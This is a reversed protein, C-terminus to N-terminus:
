SPWRVYFIPLPAARVDNLSKKLGKRIDAAIKKREEFPQLEQMARQADEEAAYVVFFFNKDWNPKIKEVHGFREFLSFFERKRADMLEEKLFENCSDDKLIDDFSAKGVFLKRGEEEHDEELIRKRQEQFRKKKEKREAKLKKKEEEWKLKRRTQEEEWAEAKAQLEAERKKHEETVARQREENKIHQRRRGEEANLQINRRITEKKQKRQQERRKQEEKKRAEKREREEQRYREKEEKITESREKNFLSIWSMDNHESSANSSLSETDSEFLGVFDDSESTDETTNFTDSLIHFDFHPLDVSAVEIPKELEQKREKRKQITEQIRQLSKNVHPPKPTENEKTRRESAMIMLQASRINTICQKSLTKILETESSANHPLLIYSNEDCLKGQEICDGLFSIHLIKHRTPDSQYAKKDWEHSLYHTTTDNLFASIKGGNRRIQSNLKSKESIPVSPGLTVVCGAFIKSDIHPM